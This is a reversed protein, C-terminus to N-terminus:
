GGMYVPLVTIKDGDKLIQDHAVHPSIVSDNYNVVVHPHLRKSERDFVVRSLPPYREALDDLLQRITTGEEVWEVRISRMESSSEFDRGLENGLWLWLEITVRNM